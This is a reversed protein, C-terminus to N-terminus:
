YSYMLKEIKKRQCIIETLNFNIHLVSSMYNDVLRFTLFRYLLMKNAQLYIFKRCKRITERFKGRKYNLYM